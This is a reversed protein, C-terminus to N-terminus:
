RLYKEVDKNVAPILIYRWVVYMLNQWLLWFEKWCQQKRHCLEVSRVCFVAILVSKTSIELDNVFLLAGFTIGGIKNHQGVIGSTSTSPVACSISDEWWYEMVHRQWLVPPLLLATQCLLMQCPDTLFLSDGRSTHIKILVAHVGRNTAPLFACSIPNVIHFFLTKYSLTQEIM